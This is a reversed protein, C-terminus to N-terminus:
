FFPNLQKLFDSHISFFWVYTMILGISIIIFGILRDMKQYKGFAFYIGIITGLIGGFLSFFGGIFFWIPHVRKIREMKM